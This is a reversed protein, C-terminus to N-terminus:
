IMQLKIHNPIMEYMKVVMLFHISGSKTNMVNMLSGDEQLEIAVIILWYPVIFGIGVSLMSLSAGIWKKLRDRHMLCSSLTSSQIEVNTKSIIKKLKKHSESNFSHIIETNTVKFLSKLTIGQKQSNMLHIVKLTVQNRLRNIKFYHHLTELIPWIAWGFSLNM